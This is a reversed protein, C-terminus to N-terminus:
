ASEACKQAEKAAARMSKVSVQCAQIAEELTESFGSQHRNHEYQTNSKSSYMSIKLTVVWGYSLHPGDETYHHIKASWFGDRVYFPDLYDRPLEWSQVWESPPPLKPSKPPTM